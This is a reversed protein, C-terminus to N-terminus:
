NDIIAVKEKNEQAKRAGNRIDVPPQTKDAEGPIVKCYKVFRLRQRRVLIYDTTSQRTGSRYTIMHDDEKQFFTNYIALITCRHVSYFLEEKM